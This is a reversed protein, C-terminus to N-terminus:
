AGCLHHTRAFKFQLTTLRVLRVEAYVKWIVSHLKKMVGSDSPCQGLAEEMPKLVSTWFTKRRFDMISDQSHGAFTDCLLQQNEVYTQKEEWVNWREEWKTHRTSLFKDLVEIMAPVSSMPVFGELNSDARYGIGRRISLMAPRYDAHGMAWTRITSGLSVSNKLTKAQRGDWNYPMGMLPLVNEKLAKLWPTTEENATLGSAVAIM